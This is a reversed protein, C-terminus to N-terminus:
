LNTVQFFNNFSNNIVVLLAQILMQCIEVPWINTLYTIITIEINKTVDM